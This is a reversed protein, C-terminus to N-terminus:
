ALVGTLELNQRLARLAYFARSKVTGQPIGLTIAAEAVSRGRFFTEILVARHDASLSALAEAVTWQELARDIANEDSELDLVEFLDGGVEQPRSGRARFGDIAVNRAVTMLWAREADATVGAPLPHRWARVLTEQVVDEGRQRDGSCLRTCYGLLMSGHEAYLRRLRDEGAVQAGMDM